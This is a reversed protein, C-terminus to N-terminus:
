KSTEQLQLTSVRETWDGGPDQVLERLRIENETVETILGFNQGMYNGAKVRYLSADARVVAFSQKGQSLVGVMQLSELPFAELPEKPRSEDPKLKSTIPTASKTVLEIKQPGFPDPLDAASYAVPEYPKVVPLPDVRRPLDKAIRNLEEKLDSHEEGGCAVLAMGFVVPFLVHKVLLSM